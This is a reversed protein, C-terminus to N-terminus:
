VICISKIVDKYIGDVSEQWKVGVDVLKDNCYQFTRVERQECFSFGCKYRYVLDDKDVTYKFSTNITDQTNPFMQEVFYFHQNKVDFVLIIEDLHCIKIFCKQSKKLFFLKKLSLYRMIDNNREISEKHTMVGGTGYRISETLRQITIVSM